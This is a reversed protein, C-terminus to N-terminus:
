GGGDDGCAAVVLSLAILLSFWKRMKRSKRPTPSLVWEPKRHVDGASEPQPPPATSVSSPSARRNNSTPWSSPPRARRWAATPPHGTRSAASRRTTRRCRRSLSGGRRPRAGTTSTFRARASCSSSSTGPLPCARRYLDHNALGGGPLPFRVDLGGLEEWLSRPMFLSSSEGKHGFIGRGSSGALARIEFLRYGDEDWGSRGLLEDEVVQDYGVEAAQMHTVEGLHCATATIVPRHRPDRRASREVATRPLRDARRRHAARPALRTGSRSRPQRGCPLPLPMTSSRSGCTGTSTGPSAM